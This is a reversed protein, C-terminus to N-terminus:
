SLSNSVCVMHSMEHTHLPETSWVIGTLELGKVGIVICAVYKYAYKVSYQKYKGEYKVQYSRFHGNLSRCKIDNNEWRNIQMGHVLLKLKIGFM